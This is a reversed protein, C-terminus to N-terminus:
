IGLDLWINHLRIGTSDKEPNCLPQPFCLQSLQKCWLMTLIFEIKKSLSFVILFFRRFMREHLIKPRKYKKYNTRLQGNFVPGLIISESTSAECDLFNRPSTMLRYTNNSKTMDVVCDGQIHWNVLRSLKEPRHQYM